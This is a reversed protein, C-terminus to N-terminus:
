RLVGFLQTIHYGRDCRKAAEGYVACEQSGVVMAFLVVALIALTALVIVDVNHNFWKRSM